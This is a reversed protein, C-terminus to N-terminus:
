CVVKHRPPRRPPAHERPSIPASSKWCPAILNKDASIKMPWTPASVTSRVLPGGYIGSHGIGAPKAGPQSCTRCGICPSKTRLAITSAGNVWMYATAGRKCPKEPILGRGNCANKIGAGRTIASRGSPCLGTARVTSGSPKGFLSNFRIMAAPVPVWASIPLDPSPSEDTNPVM